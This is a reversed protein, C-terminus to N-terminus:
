SSQEKGGDEAPGRKEFRIIWRYLLVIFTAGFIWLTGLSFFIALDIPRVAASSMTALLSM